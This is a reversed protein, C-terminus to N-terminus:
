AATEDARWCAVRNGDGLDELTPRRARCEALVLPCRAAYLCGPPRDGLSPVAGPIPLPPRRAGPRPVAALLARTYPHRPAELLRAAPGLEVIAGAYMVAIDDAIESIVALNHSIFQLALGLEAQLDLLLDLIRAQVTVDLATTPEDAILIEPRCALAIALTVRQRMGGSLEHPYFGAQRAPDPLGVRGLWGVAGARAAGHSLDEHLWLSEAVQDGVTMAPNLAGMPDQFVMSLHRGRIKRLAAPDLRTLDRGRWIVQGHAILASPPLLGLLALATVSKGSGSEGVVGLTRGAQLTYSVGDVAVLIGAPLSFQVSLDSVELLTAGAGAEATVAQGDL